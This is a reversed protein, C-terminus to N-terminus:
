TLPNIVINKIVFSLLLLIVSAIAFPVYHESKKRHETVELKTKELQDIKDYIAKLSTMDTARFYQGNTIDAIETLTEEDINVEVPGFVYGMGFPKQSVPGMAKGKTGVGIAYVTIGYEQALKAADVPQINGSTNEGDTLLIIVKSKADSDNLRKVSTALGMGIATGGQLMDTHLAGIMETLVRQDTTLPVQTFSVGAYMVLGMRDNPRSNVFDIAVEKSAELRNGPFDEALMSPSIDMAIVIDIGEADANQWSLNSQPRAMAIILLGLSLLQLWYPLHRLKSVGQNGVQSLLSGDSFQLNAKLRSHNKWYYWSLVPVLPLLLLWYWQGFSYYQNIFWNDGFPWWQPMWMFFVLVLLLVNIVVLGNRLIKSSNSM